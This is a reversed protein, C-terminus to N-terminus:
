EFNLFIQGDEFEVLQMFENLEVKQNDNKDVREFIKRIEIADHTGILKRTNSNSMFASFEQFSIYGDRSSDVLNWVRKIEKQQTPFDM